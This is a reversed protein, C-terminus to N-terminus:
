IENGGRRQTPHLTAMQKVREAYAQGRVTDLAMRKQYAEESKEVAATMQVLQAERVIEGARMHQEVRGQIVELKQYIGMIQAQLAQLKDVLAQIARKKRRAKAAGFIMSALMGVFAAAIVYPNGGTTAVFSAINTPTFLGSKKGTMGEIQKITANYQGILRESESLLRRYEAQEGQIKKWADEEAAFLARQREQAWPNLSGRIVVPPEPQYQVDLVVHAGHAAYMGAGPVVFRGLDSGLYM